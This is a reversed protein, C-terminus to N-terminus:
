MANRDGEQFDEPTFDIGADWKQCIGDVCEMVGWRQGRLWNLLKCADAVPLVVADWFINGVHTRYQRPDYQLKLPGAGSLGAGFTLEGEAVQFAVGAPEFDETVERSDLHILDEVQLQVLEDSHNGNEDNCCLHVRVYNPM